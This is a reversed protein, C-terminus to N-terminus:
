ALVWSQSSDKVTCEEVPSSKWRLGLTVYLYKRTNQSIMGKLVSDLVLIVCEQAEDLYLGHLDVEKFNSDKAQKFVIYISRKKLITIKSDVENRFGRLTTAERSHGVSSKTCSQYIRQLNQLEKRCEIFQYRLENKSANTLGQTVHYGFSAEALEGGKQLSVEHRDHVAKNM